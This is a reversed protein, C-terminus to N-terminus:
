LEKALWKTLQRPVADMSGSTNYPIYEDFMKKQRSEDMATDIAMQLVRIGKRKADTVVKRVHGMGQEGGYNTGAPLGDSLVILIKQEDGQAEDQMQRAVWAIAHGDYNNGHPKTMILGLRSMKDGPEWLRYIQATNSMFHTRDDTGVDGTHGYVKPTVGDMSTLAEIFLRAMRQAASLKEGSMSGSMDVLLYVRASVRRKEEKEQFVRWDDAAWRWLEDDDVTGERSLKLSDVPVDDRFLLAAKYKNLMPDPKDNYMRKSLSNEVPRTIHLTPNGRGDDTRIPTAERQLKEDRLQQVQQATAADLDPTGDQHTCPNILDKMTKRWERIINDLAEGLAEMEKERETQADMQAGAGKDEGKRNKDVSDERLHELGEVLTPILNTEPNYRDRWATWWLREPEFSKDTMVKASEEPWRLFAVVANLRDTLDKTYKKPPKCENWVYGLASEFYGAFGPFDKTTMAEIRGDEIINWLHAAVAMPRLKEKNKEVERMYKRTGNKRSHSAEHLGFGTMVDMAAGETLKGEIIPKASVTIRNTKLDTFSVSHEADTHPVVTCRTGSDDVVRVTDEVATMALAIKASKDGSLWTQPKYGTWWESLHGSSSKKLPDNWSWTKGWGADDKKWWESGSGRATDSRGGYSRTIKERKRLDAFLRWFKRDGAEDDTCQENLRRLQELQDGNLWWFTDNEDKRWAGQEEWSRRENTRQKAVIPKSSSAQGAEQKAHKRFKKLVNSM